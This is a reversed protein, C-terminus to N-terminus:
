YNWSHRGEFQKMEEMAVDFAILSDSDFPLESLRITHCHFLRPLDWYRSTVSNYYEKDSKTFGGGTPNFYISDESDFIRQLSLDIEGQYQGENGHIKMPRVRTAISGKKGWGDGTDLLYYAHLAKTEDYTDVFEPKIKYSYSYKNHKQKYPTGCLAVWQKYMKGLYVYKVNHLAVVVDGPKASVKKKSKETTRVAEKYEDSDLRILRNNAGDRAWVLEAKIEGNEIVTNLILDILNEISIELEYGNPDYVRALKNSTSWRSAFDVVKFGTMPVNKLIKTENEDDTKDDEYWYGRLWRNVTEVRKKGAYNDEYPVMFGLPVGSDNTRKNNIGVYIENFIKM